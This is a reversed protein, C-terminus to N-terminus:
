FPEVGVVGTAVTFPATFNMGCTIEDGVADQIYRIADFAKYAADDNELKICDLDLGSFDHIDKIPPETLSKTMHDSETYKGGMAMPLSYLGHMMGIGDFGFLHYAAIQLEAKSKASLESEKLTTGILDPLVLDAMMQVPMRDVEEGKALANSREIPTMQDDKRIDAFYELNERYITNNIM